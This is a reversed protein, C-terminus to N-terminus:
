NRKWTRHLGTGFFGTPTQPKEPKNTNLEPYSIRTHYITKLSEILVRKADAVDRFTLPCEKFCGDALQGDIIKNVLASITEETYEKLSRSAAEVADCMMLIAQERTWPNPGPYAFLSKDVEEEPHKNAYQIYFYKTIGAGHHTVIFDRIVQPLHFKEALKVGERVHDIIIKASQEEPLQNHPNIGSQNETFFAPNLMKGIDHYLAGTRVLQPKAGIKDAVEAALNGVQMSHNFTGQAVKSMKRLIPNNINTLEILTVSSTFGFVREILYMLPYAFLLLLGSIAIYKLRAHDLSAIDIGQALDYSVTVFMGVFTVAAAMKLLQSRETMERLTYIATMGVSLQLLLFEFPGYLVLATLVASVVMGIFATRSDMFLRIFLPVMAFPLIFVNSFQHQVMWYALLPFASIITYLLLLTHPSRLYDRRFLKLYFFFITIVALVFLTQGLIITWYGQGPDRRRENEMKMSDLVKIHTATVIQGRDIIFQGSLIMAGKTEINLAATREAETRHIDYHINTSLYNRLHCREMTNRSLGKQEHKLIENYATAPTLVEDLTREVAETGRVLLFRDRGEKRLDVLEESSIIGKEYVQRLLAALKPLADDNVHELSAFDNKLKALQKDCVLTDLDYYPRLARLISDREHQIEAETKCIPFDYAAILQSYRWPRGLEYEYGFKDERPLCYLLLIVVVVPTMYTALLRKWHQSIRFPNKM